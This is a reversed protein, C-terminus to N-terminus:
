FKGYKGGHEIEVKMFLEQKNKVNVLVKEGLSEELWQSMKEVLHFSPYFALNINVVPLKKIAEILKILSEKKDNKDFLRVLSDYYRSDIKKLNGSFKNGTLYISKSLEDLDQFLDNAQSVTVLQELITSFDM